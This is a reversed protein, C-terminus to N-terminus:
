IRYERPADQPIEALKAAGTAELARVLQWSIPTPKIAEAEREAASMEPVASRGLHFGPAYACGALSAVLALSVARVILANAGASLPNAGASLSSAGASLAAVGTPRAPDAMPRHLRDASEPM